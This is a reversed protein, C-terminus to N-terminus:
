PGAVPGMAAAAQQLVLLYRDRNQRMRELDGGIGLAVPRDQITVPLLVCLTAGGLLPINEAWGFGQARITHIQEIMEGINVRIGFERTAINARRVVADVKEDTMTSMLLWGVASQTLPRMTGEDVHFRVPHISQMLQLYQLQVDNATNISTTEGTAAHVDRMANLVQGTGFLADAIWDGLSAVKPTPFYHRHKRDFSLYGSRILTKLLVSTSSLPYGLTAAIDSLAQPRRMRSFLELVEIARSASKVSAAGMEM